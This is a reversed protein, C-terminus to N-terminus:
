EKELERLEALEKKDIKVKGDKILKVQKVSYIKPAADPDKDLKVTLKQTLLNQDIVVGKGEETAVVAGIKPTTKLLDM